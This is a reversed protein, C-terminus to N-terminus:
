ILLHECLDFLSHLSYRLFGGRERQDGHYFVLLFQIMNLDLYCFSDKFHGFSNISTSCPLKTVLITPLDEGGQDGRDVREM